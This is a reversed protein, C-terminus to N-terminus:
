KGQCLRLDVMENVEPGTSILTVPTNVRQEISTIFRRASKTLQDYDTIGSCEKDYLDIGTLAIQTAGNVTTAEQLLKYDFHGARRPRGTVAGYEVIGLKETEQKTMETPFPGNGVRVPFTRCVVIVEDINTPGVGVDAAFASATTDKSTVYPYMGLFLSMKYGQTGEILVDREKNIAENIEKPVDTLFQTLDKVHAIQRSERLARASNAPGCGTGTTDIITSLNYSEKDQKIHKQEILTCRFDVGLRQQVGLLKIEDLLVNPDILVGPGILLRSTECVFGCPLLRLVHKRGRFRVSHGANPGVGARAVITPKDRRSLYSVVKGKGEDGYQGGCVITVTM